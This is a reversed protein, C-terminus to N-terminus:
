RNFIQNAPISDSPGRAQFDLDRPAEQSANADTWPATQKLPRDRSDYKSGFTLALVVAVVVIAVVGGYILLRKRVSAGYQQGIVERRKPNGMADVDSRTAGYESTPKESPTDEQAETEEADAM